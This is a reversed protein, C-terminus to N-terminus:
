DKATPPDENNATKQAQPQLHLKERNWWISKWVCILSDTNIYSQEQLM